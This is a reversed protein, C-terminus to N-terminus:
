CNKSSAIQKVIQIGELIKVISGYGGWIACYLGKLIFIGLTMKPISQPSRNAKQSTIDKFICGKVLYFSNFVDFFVSYIHKNYGTQQSKFIVRCNAQCAGQRCKNIITLYQM